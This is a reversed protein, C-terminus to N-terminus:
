TGLYQVIHPHRITDLFYCEQEIKQLVTMAGPDNFFHVIYFKPLVHSTMVGLRAYLVMPVLALCKLKTFKLKEYHIGHAM